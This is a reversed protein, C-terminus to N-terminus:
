EDSSDKYKESHMIRKLMSIDFGFWKMTNVNLVPGLQMPDGALVVSTKTGVLGGKFFSNKIGWFIIFRYSDM